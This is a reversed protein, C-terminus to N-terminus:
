HQSPNPALPSPSSLSHSPQIAYGLRHVHTQTSEPLQHYVPLGPISCNIPYCLTPGSQAVSNFQISNRILDPVELNEWNGDIHLWIPGSRTKESCVEKM